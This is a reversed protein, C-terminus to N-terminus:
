KDERRRQPKADMQLGDCKAKLREMEAKLADRERQAELCLRANYEKDDEIANATSCATQYNKELADFAAAMSVKDHELSAAYKTAEDREKIAADREDVLRNHEAVLEVNETDYEALMEAVEAAQLSTIEPCSVVALRRLWAITESPAKM